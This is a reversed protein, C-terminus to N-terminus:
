SSLIPHPLRHALHSPLLKLLGTRVPRWGASLLLVFAGLALATLPTTTDAFGVRQFLSGLAYGAYVLGSVLMARRDIVVAVIGLALFVALVAPAVTSMDAGESLQAILPHVIMPAALLHLWFAIDTRRTARQPDALDFRMALAFVGLGTLLVLPKLYVEVFGPAVASILGIVAVALAATGAAITIPVRFRFYHLATLALTLLAAGVFILSDGSGLIESVDPEVAVGLVAGLLYTACSFVAVAFLVLLAISPLAMRRRLTFFEALLWATVALVAWMTTLGLRETLYALAGTFLALGLTVFIDSFGSVLRLKEDDEPEPIAAANMQRALSRLDTAQQDTLIGRTVAQVLVSESIM